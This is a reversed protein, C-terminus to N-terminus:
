ALSKKIRSACSKVTKAVSSASACKTSSKASTKSSCSKTSKSSTKSKAPKTTCCDDDSCCCDNNAGAAFLQECAKIWCEKEKGEPRGAQEWIYYAAGRINDENMQDKM